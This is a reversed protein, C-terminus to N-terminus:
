TEGAGEVTYWVTAVKVLEVRVTEATQSLAVNFVEGANVTQYAAQHGDVLLYLELPVDCEGAVIGEVHLTEGARRVRVHTLYASARIELAVEGLFNGSTGVELCNRPTLLATVDTEVPGNLFQGLVHGNLTLSILSDAQAGIIWVREHADIRGPYGFQRSLVLPAGAPAWSERQFPVTVRRANGALECNWPGRLRIRHPYMITASYVFPISIIPSSV